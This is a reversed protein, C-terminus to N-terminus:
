GGTGASWRCPWSCRGTPRSPHCRCSRSGTRGWPRAPCPHALHRCAPFSRLWASTRLRLLLSMVVVGETPLRRSIWPAPAVASPKRPGQFICWAQAWDALLFGRSILSDVSSVPVWAELPLSSRRPMRMAILSTLARPPTSPRRMSVTCASVPPSATRAVATACVMSALFSTAKRSPPTCEPAALAIECTACFYPQM